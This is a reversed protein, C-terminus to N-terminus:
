KTKGNGGEGNSKTPIEKAVIKSLCEPCYKRLSGQPAPFQRKCNYCTYDIIIKPLKIHILIRNPHPLRHSINEINELSIIGKPIQLQKARRIITRPHVGVNRAITSASINEWYPQNNKNLFLNKPVNPHKDSHCLGCLVILTSDDKPIIHHAQINETSGCQQCIYNANSKVITSVNVMTKGRIETEKKKMGVSATAILTQANDPTQYAHHGNGDV